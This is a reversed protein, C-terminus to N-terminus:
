TRPPQIPIAAPLAAATLMDQRMWNAHSAVMTLPIAWVTEFLTLIAIVALAAALYALARLQRPTKGPWILLWTHSLVLFVCFPWFAWHARVRGIVSLASVSDPWLGVWLCGLAPACLLARLFANTLKAPRPNSTRM